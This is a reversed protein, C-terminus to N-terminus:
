VYNLSGERGDLTIFSGILPRITKAREELVTEEAEWRALLDKKPWISGLWSKKELRQQEKEREERVLRRVMKRWNDFGTQLCERCRGVGDDDNKVLEVVTEAADVADRTWALGKEESSSAFIIEGIYTMIGAEECIESPSRLPPEDGSPPPPPYPPEKMWKTVFSVLADVAAAGDDNPRKLNPKSPPNRPAQLERRARLVSLFIPLADSLNGKRAHHVALATSATLVNQSVHGSAGAVIIGSQTDVVNRAGTPLSGAAIDLGWAFMEQATDPLNKYDLWDAYAIAANVRQRSTFGATTLIKLYFTEPSQFAPECNEELPAELNGWTVPKPRPNSPGIVVDPSFCANRTKDRVWGELHEAAKAAGMLADYYGTKWQYSMNRLDFGAKGMGPVFIGGEEQELLGNGDINPDELRKLLEVFADGTRGWDTLGEHSYAGESANASRMLWRSWFSWDRPTPSEQEAKQHHIGLSLMTIITFFLVVYGGTEVTKRSLRKM